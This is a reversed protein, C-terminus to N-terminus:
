AKKGAVRRYAKRSRGAAIVVEKRLLLKMGHYSPLSGMERKYNQGLACILNRRKVPPSPTYM